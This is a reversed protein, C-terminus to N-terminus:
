KIYDNYIMVKTRGVSSGKFFEFGKEFESLPFRHSILPSFDVIKKDLMDIITGFSRMDPFVGVVKISDIYIDYPSINIKAQTPAVGFFIVTGERDVVTFGREIVSPVGTCDVVVDYKKKIVDYYSDKADKTNFVSDAGLSQAFALKDDDVDIMDLVLPNRSRLLTLWLLGISGAGMILVRKDFYEPVQRIGCYVCAAPELLAGVDYSISEPLHHLCDKRVKIYEAFAGDVSTGISDWDLCIRNSGKRCNECSHCYIEPSVTVRDGIKFNKVKSGLEVIDGSFEHGLILPLYQPMFDGEYAHIDTGCLGCSQVRVLAEDEAIKPIPVDKLSLDKTGSLVAAKM